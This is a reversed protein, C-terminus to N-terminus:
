TVYIPIAHLHMIGLNWGNASAGKYYLTVVDGAAGVRNYISRCTSVYAGTSQNGLVCDADAPTINPSRIAVAINQSGCPHQGVGFTFDYRGARPLTITPTVSLAVYSAQNTLTNTGSNENALPSGGIFFWKSAASVWRFRWVYTPTTVNDVLIAEQGEVPSAPLTTAPAQADAIISGPSRLVNAATRKLMTDYSPGGFSIAPGNASAVEDWGIAVQNATNYDAVVPANGFLTSGVVASGGVELNVDTRLTSAAKRYLNTDTATSGGPGWNQGGDPAIYFKPNADGAHYMGLYNDMIYVNLETQLITASGGPNYFGSKVWSTWSGGQQRREYVQSGPPATFDWVRQVRYGAAGHAIVEGMVWNTLAAPANAYSAGMWWGNDLANNWDSSPPYKCVKGLRGTGCDFDGVVYLNQDTQLSNASVRYLNVDITTGDGWQLKGDSGILLRWSSDAAMRIAAFYGPNALNTAYFATQNSGGQYSYFSGGATFTGDTRLSAVGNRYLNTDDTASTGGTWNLAGGIATHFVPYGTAAADYIVLPWLTSDATIVLCSPLSARGLNLQKTGGREMVVDQATTGGPGWLYAGSGLVQWAPQTDGAALKNSIIRTPGAVVTDAPLGGTGPPGTAGTPGQPGQPGGALAIALDAGWRNTTSTSPGIALNGTAHTTFVYLEIYDGVALQVVTSVNVQVAVAALTAGIMGNEALLTTGNLMIRAVRTTGSTSAAFTIHGSIEYLGATKITLRTPNTAL